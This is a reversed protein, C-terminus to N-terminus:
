SNFGEYFHHTINYKTQTSQNTQKTPKAQKIIKFQIINRLFNYMYDIEKFM